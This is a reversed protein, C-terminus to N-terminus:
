LQGDKEGYRVMPKDLRDNLVKLGISANSIKSQSTGLTQDITMVKCAFSYMEGLYSNELEYPLKGYKNVCYVVLAAENVASCHKLANDLGERYLDLQDENIEYLSKDNNDSNM